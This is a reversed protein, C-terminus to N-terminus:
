EKIFKIHHTQGHKDNVSIFYIGQVYRSIDIIVQSQNNTIQDIIESTLCTVKVTGYANQIILNSNAPNPFVIPREKIDDIDEITNLVPNLYRIMTINNFGGTGLQVIKSDNQLAANISYDIDDPEIDVIIEGQGCANLDIVGTNSLAMLKFNRQIAAGDWYLSDEIYFISQNLSLLKVKKHINDFHFNYNFNYNMDINGTSNVKVISHFYYGNDGINSTAYIDNTNSVILDAAHLIPTWAVIRFGNNGFVTDIIGTQDLKGIFVNRWYLSDNKNKGAFIIDQNQLLSLKNIVTYTSTVLHFVGTDGFNYNLSGDANLQIIYNVHDSTWYYYYEINEIFSHGIFNIRGLNDVVMDQLFHHQNAVISYSIKGNMGFTYDLSGDYNLRIFAYKQFGSVISNGGILIKGDTLIIIKKLFDKSINFDWVINGNVGFNADISGDTNFRSIIFDRNQGVVIDSGVVIKGDQQLAISKPFISDTGFNLQVIGANGFSPDLCQNQSLADFGFYLISFCLFIYTKM